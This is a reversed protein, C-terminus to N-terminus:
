NEEIIFNDKGIFAISIFPINYRDKIEKHCIGFIFDNEIIIDENQNINISNNGNVNNRENLNSRFNIKIIEDYELIQMDKKDTNNRINIRKYGPIKDCILQTDVEFCPLWLVM